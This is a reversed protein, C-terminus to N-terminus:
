QEARGYRATAGTGEVTFRQPDRIGRALAKRVSNAKVPEGDDDVDANLRDVLQALTLREDGLAEDIRDALVVSYPQEWVERLQDDHWTMTVVFRGLSAYNNRKRHTLIAREGDRKLSWTTRALNHWFASGFPYRLDEAKTVHALSLVPLGILELGGAYLAPTEPKMPDFGACAIVISDVVVVGCDNAQALARILAAQRWIPGREATWAATLPAVHVVGARAEAGGVSDLRRAWEDPHNEYDLILVRHGARVLQVIWWAVLAGKGSGGTGYLITHDLPDLRDVMMPLPREAKVEILCRAGLDRNLADKDLAPPEVHEWLPPPQETADMATSLSEMRGDHRPQAHQRRYLEDQAAKTTSPLPEDHSARMDQALLWVDAYDLSALDLPEVPRASPM